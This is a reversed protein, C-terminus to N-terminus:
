VSPPGIGLFQSIEVVKMSNHIGRCFQSSNSCFDRGELGKCKGKDFERDTIIVEINRRLGEIELNVPKFGNELEYPTHCDMRSVPITVSSSLLTSEMLFCAILILLLM